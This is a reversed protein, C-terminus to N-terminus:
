NALINSLSFKPNNFIFIQWNLTKIALITGRASQCKIYAEILHNLFPVCKFQVAPIILICLFRLQLGCRRSLSYRDKKEGRKEESREKVDRRKMENEARMTAAEESGNVGKRNGGGWRLMTYKKHPPSLKKQYMKPVKSSKSLNPIIWMPPSNPMSTTGKMTAQPPLEGLCPYLSPAPLM